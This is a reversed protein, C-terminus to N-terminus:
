LRAALIALGVCLTQVIWLRLTIRPEPWECAPLWYSYDIGEAHEFHHHLPAIKFVRRGTARFYAVQIIVSSGELVLVGALLPLLFATGSVLACAAVVGGLFFSGVNGLFLRAPHGNVWLFGILCAILPVIVSRLEGGPGLALFGLLIIVSVGSALGDLGDTLNMCNTTALFVIWALFFSPITSLTLTLTSFPVRLPPCLLGRFAFFLGASAATGLLLKQWPLLGLSRRYGMSILDDVLGIAGFSFGALFVFLGESSLRLSLPLSCLSIGWFLLVVVGGMTPTGGKKEHLNPGYERIHQGLSARRMWGAFLHAAIATAPAVLLSLLVLRNM